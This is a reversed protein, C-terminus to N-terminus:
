RAAGEKSTLPGDPESPSAPVDPLDWFLFGATLSHERNLTRIVRETVVEGDNRFGKLDHARVSWEPPEIICGAELLEMMVLELAKALRGAQAAKAMMEDMEM